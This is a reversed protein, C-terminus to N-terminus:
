SQVSSTTELPDGPAPRPGAGGRDVRDCYPAKEKRGSGGSSHRCSRDQGGLGQTANTAFHVRATADRHCSLDRVCPRQWTCRFTPLRVLACRFLVLFISRPDLSHPVVLTAQYRRDGTRRERAQGWERANRRRSLTHADACCFPTAVSSGRWDGLHRCSRRVGGAFALKPVPCKM